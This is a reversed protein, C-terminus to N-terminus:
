STRASRFIVKAQTIPRRLKVLFENLGTKDLKGGDSKIVNKESKEVATIAAVGVEEGEEQDEDTDDEGEDSETVHTVEDDEDSSSTEEEKLAMRQLCNLVPHSMCIHISANIVEIFLHQVFVHYKSSMDNMTMTTMTMM